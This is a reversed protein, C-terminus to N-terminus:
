APVQEDDDVVEFLDAFELEPFATLVAAIFAEGPARKGTLVRGVTPETVNLATAQAAQTKWGKLAAFKVYQGTRLRIRSAM